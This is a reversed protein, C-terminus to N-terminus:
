VNDFPRAADNLVYSSVEGLHKVKVGDMHATRAGGDYCRVSFEQEFRAAAEDFVGGGCHRKMRALDTVGPNLSFGPWHTFTHGDELCGFEHELYSVGGASRRRWGARGFAGNGVCDELDSAEACTRTSQDNVLVQMVGAGEDLLVQMPEEVMEKLGAGELVLWDDEFYMLYRTKVMQVILNMSKAHGKDEAKKFVFKMWPFERQMTRRDDESSSDDVVLVECVAGWAGGGPGLGLNKELAAATQLFLDLRKCTTFAITLYCQHEELEGAAVTEEPTRLKDLAQRSEVWARDAHAPVRRRLEGGLWGIGEDTFGYRLGIFTALSGLDDGERVDVRIRESGHELEFTHVIQSELRNVGRQLVAAIWRYKVYEASVLEGVDQAFPIPDEGEGVRVMINGEGTDPQLKVAYALDKGPLEIGRHNPDLFRAPIREVGFGEPREHNVAYRFSLYTLL